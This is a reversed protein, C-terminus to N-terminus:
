SGQVVVQSLDGLRRFLQNVQWVLSLRNERVRPDEAMVLVANFLGDIVPRLDRLAAYVAEFDGAAAAAEVVPTAALYADHLATEEATMFRHPDPTGGSFAKVISGVRTSAVVTPEFDTASEALRGLARARAVADSVDDFGSALAAAVLDYRIGEGAPPPTQLLTELRGQFFSTVQAAVEAADRMPVEQEALLDLEAQLVRSLSVRWGSALITSVIGQADRRLGYPDQSGTPILGVAFCGVVTDLKDAVAVLRGAVSAAPADEASRPAYHEAIAQAVEVSEGEARAYHAGMVGQLKSFETVMDTVLDAKCLRAAREAATRTADDAGIQDALEAALRVIRETKAALTGLKEQFVVGALREAHASLPVKLDQQYFFQADILKARLVWENGDRVSDLFEENGDRVGIFRPLLAGGSQALPFYGQADCMVRTLVEVPLELFQEGFGGAFATPWEVLLATEELLSGDDLVTAREASSIAEIQARLLGHREQEDVIVFRARLADEYADAHDLPFEEPGLVRHGRSCRSSTIGDLEFVIPQEGLLATFWRLPRGFRFTGAGWRMLKPFTLEKILAPLVEALVEISPRGPDPSVAYVYEGQPTERRELAEVAIGQGRAFGSAAPTPKGQADFAVRVAPGKVERMAPKQAAALDTVTLALRRPASYAKVEGCELRLAAFRERALSELQPRAARQMRPPM